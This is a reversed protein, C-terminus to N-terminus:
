FNGPAVQFCVIGFSRWMDVVSQRDDFCFRPPVSLEHLWGQKLLVDSTKDGEQRMKLPIHALGQLGLWHVTKDKVRDTRGSWIVPDFGTLHLARLTAIVPENPEDLDCADFFSDWDKKQGPEVQVFHQRHDNLAITGDLDFIVMKRQIPQDM